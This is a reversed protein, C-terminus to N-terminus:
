KRNLWEQKILGEKKWPPKIKNVKIKRVKKRKKKRKLKGNKNELQEIRNELEEIKDILKNIKNKQQINEKISNKKEVTKM